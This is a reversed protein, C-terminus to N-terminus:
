AAGDVRGSRDRWSALGQAAGVFLGLIAGYSPILAAKLVPVELLELIGAASAYGLGAGVASAAIWWATAGVTRRLALWQVAGIGLGATAGASMQIAAGGLVISATPSIASAVQEGVVAAGVFGAASGLATLAVWSRRGVGRLAIIQALGLAAGIVAGFLAVVVLGRLLPSLPRAGAGLLATSATMGLALGVATTGIWAIVTM